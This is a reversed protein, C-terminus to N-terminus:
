EFYAGAQATRASTRARSHVGLGYSHDSADLRFNAASPSITLVDRLTSFGKKHINLLKGIAMAKVCFTAYYVAYQVISVVLTFIDSGFFQGTCNGYM